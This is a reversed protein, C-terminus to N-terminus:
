SKFIDKKVMYKIDEESMNFMKGFDKYEEVAANFLKQLAKLTNMCTNRIEKDLKILFEDSMYGNDNMYKLINDMACILLLTKTEDILTVDDVDYKSADKLVEDCATSFITSNNEM